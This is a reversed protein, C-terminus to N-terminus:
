ETVGKTTITKLLNGKEDFIKRTKYEIKKEKNKYTITRPTGELSAVGRIIDYTICHNDNEIKEVSTARNKSFKTVGEASDNIPTRTISVFKKENVVSYLYDTDATILGTKSDWKIINVCSSNKSGYKIESILPSFNYSYNTIDGDFTISSILSIKNPTNNILLNEESIDCVIKKEKYIILLKNKQKSIDRHYIISILDSGNPATLTLKYKNRNIKYKYSKSNEYLSIGRLLADKYSFTIKSDKSGSIIEISNGDIEKLEFENNTTTWVKKLASYYFKIINLDPAQWLYQKSDIKHVFSDFISVNWYSELLISKRDIPTTYFIFRFPIRPVTVDGESEILNLNFLKKSYLVFGSEDTNGLLNRPCGGDLALFQHMFDTACLYMSFSCELMFLLIIVFVNKIYTNM